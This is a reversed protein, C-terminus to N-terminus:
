LYKFTIMYASPTGEVNINKWGISNEQISGRNYSINDNFQNWALIEVEELGAEWSVRVEDMYSGEPSYWPDIFSLAIDSLSIPLACTQVGTM